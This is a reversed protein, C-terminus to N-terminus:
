TLIAHDYMIKCGAVYMYMSSLMYAHFMETVLLLRPPHYSETSRILSSTSMVLCNGLLMTQAATKLDATKLDATKLTPTELSAM